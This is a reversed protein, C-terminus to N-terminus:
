SYCLIIFINGGSFFAFVFGILGLELGFVCRVFGILGLKLGFVLSVFGILGLKLLRM